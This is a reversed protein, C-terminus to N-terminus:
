NVHSAGALVIRGLAEGLCWHLKEATAVRDALKARELDISGDDAWSQMLDYRRFLLVDPLISAQRLAAQYPAINANAQLFRSFQPDVLLLDAASEHVLAAGDALTDSFDGPSLNRVADVTGTQWLVLRYPHRSIAVRMKDLQDAATLGRESEVDVTVKVAPRAARLAQAMRYPFSSEPPAKVPGQMTASGIALIDLQGHAFADAVHPLAVVSETLVAPITCDPTLAEAHALPAGLLVLMALFRPRLRIKM